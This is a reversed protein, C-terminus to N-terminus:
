KAKVTISITHAWAPGYSVHAGDAFQLTIRYNGPKLELADETQGKGYHKHFEDNIIVEGAAMAEKNVLIHFHGTGDEPKGAPKIDMGSVNMKFQVPSTVEAKDAPASLWVKGTYEKKKCAFVALAMLPILMKISKM